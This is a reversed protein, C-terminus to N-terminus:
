VPTIEPLIYKSNRSQVIPRERKCKWSPVLHISIFSANGKAREWSLSSTGANWTTVFIDAVVVTIQKQM